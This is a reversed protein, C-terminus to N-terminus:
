KRSGAVAMLDVGAQDALAALKQLDLTYLTVTRDALRKEVRTHELYREVLEGTTM